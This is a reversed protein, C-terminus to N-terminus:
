GSVRLAMHPTAPFVAAQVKTGEVTYLFHECMTESPPNPCTAPRAEIVVRQWKGAKRERERDDLRVVTRDSILPRIESAGLETAKQVILEMNRGKPIAQVLTLRATLPESKVVGQADLAIEYRDM